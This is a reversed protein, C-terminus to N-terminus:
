SSECPDLSTARVEFRAVLGRSDLDFEYFRDSRGPALVVAGDGTQELGPYAAQLQGLSSGLGIGEPTFVADLDSVEEFPIVPHVVSVVEGAALAVGVHGRSAVVIFVDCGTGVADPVLASRPLEVAGPLVRADAESLGLRVPSLHKATAMDVGDATLMVGGSPPLPRCGSTLEIAGAGGTSVVRTSFLPNTTEIAAPRVAGPPLDVRTLCGDTISGTVVSGFQDQSVPRVGGDVPDGVTVGPQRRLFETSAGLLLGGVGVPTVIPEATRGRDETGERRFVSLGEIVKELGPLDTRASVDISVSMTAPRDSRTRLLANGVRVVRWWGARPTPGYSTVLLDTDGRGSTVTDPGAAACEAGARIQDLATQAVAGSEFLDLTRQQPFAGEPFGRPTTVRDDVLSSYTDVDPRCSPPLEVPVGDVRQQVPEGKDDLLGVDIRVSAPIDLLWGRSRPQEADDATTTSPSPSPNPTPTPASQPDVRREGGAISTTVAVVAVAAAAAAVVATTRRRRSREGRRRLGAPVPVPSNPGAFGELRKGIDGM